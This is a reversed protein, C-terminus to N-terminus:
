EGAASWCAAWSNSNGVSTGENDVESTTVLGMVVIVITTIFFILVAYIIRKILRGQAAKVDKDDSAIVAKGLDVTGLVILLIPIAIQVIPLLGQRVLRVIPLLGGCSDTGINFLELIFDM